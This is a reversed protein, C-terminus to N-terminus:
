RVWGQKWAERLLQGRGLPSNHSRLITRAHRSGVRCL